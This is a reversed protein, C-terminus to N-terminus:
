NPYTPIIFWSNSDHAVKTQITTYVHVGWLSNSEGAATCQAQKSLERNLACLFHVDDGATRASEPTIMYFWGLCDVIKKPSFGRM